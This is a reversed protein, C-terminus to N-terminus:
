VEKLVLVHSIITSSLFFIFLDILERGCLAIIVFSFLHYVINIMAFCKKYKKIFHEILHLAVAIAILILLCYDM